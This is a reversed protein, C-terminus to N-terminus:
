ESHGKGYSSLSASCNSIKYLSAPLKSKPERM